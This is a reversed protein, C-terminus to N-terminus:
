HNCDPRQCDPSGVLKGEGNLHYHCCSIFKDKLLERGRVVRSKIASLSIGLQEAIVKHKLGKMESLYIVEKYKDPLENIHPELCCFDDHHSETEPESIEQIEGDKIHMRSKLRFYDNIANRTVVYMWANLNTDEALADVKDITKVFVDQLIDEADERNHVKSIIFGLLQDSTDLWSQTVSHKAKTTM